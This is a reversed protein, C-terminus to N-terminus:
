DAGVSLWVGVQACIAIGSGHDRGHIGVGFRRSRGRPGGAAGNM